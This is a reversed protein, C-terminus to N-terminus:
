PTKKKVRVIGGTPGDRIGDTPGDTPVDVESEGRENGGNMGTKKRRGNRVEKGPSTKM